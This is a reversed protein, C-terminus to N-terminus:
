IHTKALKLYHTHLKAVQERLDEFNGNNKIIDDAFKLRQAQSIQSQMILAVEASSVRDRQMTRKIQIDKDCDIVLIRNLDYSSKAEFLLPIVIICYQSRLKSLEINVQTQIAPHTIAELKKRLDPNEFVIQRLIKRQISADNNLIRKGFENVIESYAPKGVEVVQRAITDTDIISVQHETQDHETFFHSVTTKGSSIGGTLGIKLM